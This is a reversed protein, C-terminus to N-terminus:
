ASNLIAQPITTFIETLRIHYFYDDFIVGDVDYSTVIERVCDAVLQRVDPIGPISGCDAATFFVTSRISHLLVKRHFSRLHRKETM